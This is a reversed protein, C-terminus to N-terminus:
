VLNLVHQFSYCLLLLLNKFSRLPRSVFKRSLATVFVVLRNMRLSLSIHLMLLETGFSDTLELKEKWGGGWGGGAETERYTYGTKLYFLDVIKHDLDTADM